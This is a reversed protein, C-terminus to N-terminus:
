YTRIPNIVASFPRWRDYQVGGMMSSLRIYLSGITVISCHGHITHYLNRLLMTHANITSFMSEMINKYLQKLNNGEKKHNYHLIDGGEGDM